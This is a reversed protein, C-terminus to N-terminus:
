RFIYLFSLDPSFKRATQEINLNLRTKEFTRSMPEALFIDFKYPHIQNKLFSNIIYSFFLDQFMLKLCTFNIEQPKKKIKTMISFTESYVSM